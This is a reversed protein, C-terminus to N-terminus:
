LEKEINQMLRNRLFEFMKHCSKLPDKDGTDPSEFNSPNRFMISWERKMGSDFSLFVMPFGHSEYNIKELIKLCEKLDNPPTRLINVLESREQRTSKSM